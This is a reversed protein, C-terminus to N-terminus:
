TFDLANKFSAFINVHCLWSIFRVGVKLSLNKYLVITEPNSKEDAFSSCGAYRLVEM